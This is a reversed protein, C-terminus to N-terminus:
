ALKLWIENRRMFWPVFPANYRSYIPGGMTRLGAAAVGRELKDLHETGERREVPSGAYYIGSQADYGPVVLRWDHTYVPNHGYDAIVFSDPPVIVAHQSANM